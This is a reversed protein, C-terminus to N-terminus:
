GGEDYWDLAEVVSKPDLEEEVPTGSVVEDDLSVSSLEDDVSPGDEELSVPVMVEGDGLSVTDPEDDLSAGDVVLSVPELVEGDELSVLGLEENVSDEHLPGDQPLVDVGVDVSPGDVDDNSM